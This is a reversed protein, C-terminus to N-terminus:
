VLACEENSERRRLPMESRSKIHVSAKSAGAPSAADLEAETASEAVMVNMLRFSAVVMKLDSVVGAEPTLV